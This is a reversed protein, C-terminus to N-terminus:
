HPGVTSGPSEPIELHVRSGRGAVGESELWVWGGHLEVFSRALALGVGMGGQALSAYSTDGPEFGRFIREQDQEAVGNGQDEVTVRIRTRDDGPSEGVPERRSLRLTVQGGRPSFKLANALLEALSRKIRLEDATIVCAGTEGTFRVAVSFREAVPQFSRRVDGLAQILDFSHYDLRTVGAAANSLDLVNGIKTLLEDGASLIYEAYRAQEASLAPEGEALLSAFGIIANMPTRLDHSMRALFEEKAQSAAESSLRAAEALDGALRRATIDHFVVVARATGAPSLPLPKASMAVWRGGLAQPNRVFLDESDVFEGELARALPLDEPRCPTVGDAQFVGYARSWERIPVGGSAPDFLRAASPNALLIEGGGDAVLIGADVANLLSDLLADQARNSATLSSRERNRSALLLSLYTLTAVIAAGAVGGIAVLRGVSSAPSLAWLTGSLVLLLGGTLLATIGSRATPGIMPDLGWPRAPASSGYGHPAQPGSRPGALANRGASGEVQAPRLLSRREADELGFEQVRTAIKPAEYPSRSPSPSM